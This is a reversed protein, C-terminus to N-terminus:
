KIASILLNALALPYSPPQSNVGPVHVRQQLPEADLRDFDLRGSPQL